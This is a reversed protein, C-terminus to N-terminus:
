AFFLTVKSTAVCFEHGMCELVVERYYVHSDGPAKANKVIRVSVASNFFSSVIRQLNGNATIVMRDIGSFTESLHPPLDQTFGQQHRRTM